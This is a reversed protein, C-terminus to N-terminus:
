TPGNGSPLCTQGHIAGSGTSCTAAGSGATDCSNPHWIAGTDCAGGSSTGIEGMMFIKPAEYKQKSVKRSM